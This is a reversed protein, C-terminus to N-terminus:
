KVKKQRKIELEGDILSKMEAAFSQIEQALNYLKKEHNRSYNRGICGDYLDTLKGLKNKFFYDFLLGYYYLVSEQSPNKGNDRRQYWGNKWSIYIFHLMKVKYDDVLTFPTFRNEETLLHEQTPPPLLERLSKEKKYDINSPKQEMIMSSSLIPRNLAQVRRDCEDVINKYNNKSAWKWITELDNIDHEYGFACSRLREFFTELHLQGGDEM